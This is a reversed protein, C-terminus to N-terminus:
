DRPEMRAVIVYDQPRTIPAASRLLPTVRLNKGASDEFDKLDDENLILLGSTPAQEEFRYIPTKSYFSVGYFETAFSYVKENPRLVLPFAVALDRSSLGNVAPPFLVANGLGFLSCVLVALPLSPVEWARKFYQGWSASSFTVLVVLVGFLGVLSWAWLPADSFYARYSEVYFAIDTFSRKGQLRSLLIQPSTIVVALLAALLFVLGGLTRALFAPARVWYESRAVLLGSLLFAAFPYAPLLYVSRKSGPIAFFILFALLVTFAYREFSDRKGFWERLGSFILAPSRLMNLSGLLPRLRWVLLLSWPLLGIALSSWLYLVSSKHPEDEQTGMFRQVNEYWIKDLFADRRELFAAVYWMAVVFLVPLFLLLGSKIIQPIPERKQLLLMVFIIGPLVIAVPGKTLAALSFMVMACWPATTRGREEWQFLAVLGGTLTAALMM